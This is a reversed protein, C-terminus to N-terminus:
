PRDKSPVVRLRRKPGPVLAEFSAAVRLNVDAQYERGRPTSLFAHYRDDDHLVVINGAAFTRVRIGRRRCDLRVLRRVEDPDRLLAQATGTAYFLECMSVVAQEANLDRLDVAAGPTLRGEGPRLPVVTPADM